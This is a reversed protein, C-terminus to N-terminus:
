DDCREPEPSALAKIWRDIYGVIRRADVNDLAGFIDHRIQWLIESVLQTPIQEKM